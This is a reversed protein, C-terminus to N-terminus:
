ALKIDYIRAFSRLNDNMLGGAWDINTRMNVGDNLLGLDTVKLPEFQWGYLHEPGFNAVYVSTSNGGTSVGATTEVSPIILTSQDSKRGIDYIPVGHFTEITRDFSDQTIDLGGSTGMLRLGRRFRRLLTENMYIRGSMGGSSLDCYSLAQELIEVFLNATAATMGASSMDVAGGTLLQESRCGITNNLRYRLGLIAKADGAIHDNNIFKDNFDYSQSKLYADIRLGRPDVINNKDQVLRRDTDINDRLIFAQEQYPAPVGTTSSPQENLSAWHVTPLGKEWRVGAAVLQPSDFFPIDRAMVSGNDVLSMVVKSVLPEHATIAYDALTMPATSINTM